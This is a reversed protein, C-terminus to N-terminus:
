SCSMQNEPLNYISSSSFLEIQGRDNVKWNQAEVIETQIREEKIFRSSTEFQNIEPTSQLRIDTWINSNINTQLPNEPVGGNGVITFNNGVSCGKTIKQTNDIPNEPLKNSELHRDNNITEVKVNGDLGLQSSASIKSDPSVFLGQTTIDINGGMGEIADAIIQSNKLLVINDTNNININGGTAKGSAKATIQSNNKLFLNNTTLNINGQSGANVQAELIASNDLNLKSATINLNGSNGNGLNSVSIKGRDSLNLNDTKINISGAAFNENSFASIQSPLKQQQFGFIPEESSVGSITINQSNIKINGANGKGLADVAISGGDILRLNNAIIDIKGGDGIGQQEVTSSIGSRSGSSDLVTDRIELNNARIAINGANGEGLTNAFIAGGQSLILNGTEIVVNGGDGKASPTVSSLLGNSLLSFQNPDEFDALLGAGNIEVSEAARVILDGGNGNSFTETSIIAFDGDIKLKRVNIDINGANGDGLTYSTILGGDRVILKEADITLNGGNGTVNSDPELQIAPTFIGSHAPIDGSSVGSVEINTAKIFLNGSDGANWTAAGIQGGDKIQLNDADIILNGGKGTSFTDTSVNGGLLEINKASISLNGGNGTAGAEVNNFIGSYFFETNAGAINVSDFANIKVERGNDDGLTRTIIASGDLLSINKGQLQLNGSGNGSTDISATKTLNIDKFNANEQSDLSFGNDVSVLSINGKEAISALEIRGQSATLNGGELNIEGGVLALTNGSSVELGTQRTDWISEFTEPDFNINHGTGQVEIAAAQKGFQLGVPINITLLTPTEPNSAGYEFGNNFVFRDATTALFSGNVDLSANEGFVIGNPNLLFLNAAGDVGLTGLIESLNNGTVRTLINAIGDPSAFYVRDGESVNFESFSHFLNNGRTAGGSIVDAIANKVKADHTVISSEKGLSNDPNIQANVSSSGYFYFLCSILSLQQWFKTHWM